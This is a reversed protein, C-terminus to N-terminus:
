HIAVFNALKLTLHERYPIKYKQIVKAALCQLNVYNIPNIVNYMKGGKYLDAATKNNINCADLHTGSNLLLCIIKDRESNILFNAGSSAAAQSASSINATVGAAVVAGGAVAAAAPGAGGLATNAASASTILPSNRNAAALHLPSNREGDLSNPDAGCELLLKLVETSPFSSLTHNKIISSSDRSSALHLLTSNKSNKPNLKILEYVLKKLKYTEEPSCHRISEAVVILFHVIVVLTRDFHGMDFNIQKIISSNSSDTPSASVPTTATNDSSSAETSPVQTNPRTSHPKSTTSTSSLLYSSNSSNSSTDDLSEFDNPTLTSSTSSCPSCSPSSLSDKTEKNKDSHSLSSSTSKSIKLSDSVTNSNVNSLELNHRDEENTLEVPMKKSSPSSTSSATAPAQNNISNNNNDNNLLSSQQDQKILNMGRKIEEVAQQLMKLVTQTYMSLINFMSGDATSANSTSSTAANNGGAVAPTATSSAAIKIDSATDRSNQSQGTLGASNLPSLQKQMYQFLETFSLFSSQIMPHLPELSKQQTDLAYLWLLICKRFNGCDAYVAGRYRIYYTTDPHTPGLIRERILLAQM